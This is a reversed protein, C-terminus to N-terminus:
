LLKDVPQQVFFNLCLNKTLASLFISISFADIALKMIMFKTLLANQVKMNNCGSVYSPFFYNVVWKM